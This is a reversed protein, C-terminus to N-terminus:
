KPFMEQTIKPQFWDRIQCDIRQFAENTWIKVDFKSCFVQFLTLKKLPCGTDKDEWHHINQTWYDVQGNFTLRSVYDFYIALTFPQLYVEFKWLLAISLYLSFIKSALNIAIFLWVKYNWSGTIHLLHTSEMKFLAPLGNWIAFKSIFCILVWFGFNTKSISYKKKILGDIQIEYLHYSSVWCLTGMVDIKFSFYNKAGERGYM